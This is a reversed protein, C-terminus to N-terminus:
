KRSAAMGPTFYSWVNAQLAKETRAAVVGWYNIAPYLGTSLDNYSGPMIKGALMIEREGLYDLGNSAQASCWTQNPNGRPLLGGGDSGTAPKLWVSLTFPKDTWLADPARLILHDDQGDFSLCTGQEPDQIWQAGIIKGHRDNGSSDAIISGQGIKMRWLAKLGDDGDVLEYGLYKHYPNFSIM